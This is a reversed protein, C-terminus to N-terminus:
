WDPGLSFYWQPKSYSNENVDWAADIRLLFYGLNIKTGVGFTTVWPTMADPSNAGYKDKLLAVNTFEEPDDWASGV